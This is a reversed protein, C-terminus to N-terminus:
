RKWRSHRGCGKGNASSSTPTSSSGTPGRPSRTASSAFSPTSATPKRPGKRCASKPPSAARRTVAPPSSPGRRSSCAHAPSSGRTSPRSSASTPMARGKPAWIASPRSAPRCRPAPMTPRGPVRASQATGEAGSRGLEGRQVSAAALPHACRDPRAAADHQAADIVRAEKPRRDQRRARCRRDEQRAGRRDLKRADRRRRLRAPKLVYAAAPGSQPPSEGPSQGGLDSGLLVVALGACAAILNRM